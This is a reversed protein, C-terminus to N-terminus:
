VHQGMLVVRRPMAHLYRSTMSGRVVYGVISLDADSSRPSPAAALMPAALPWPQYCPWCICIGTLTTVTPSRFISQARKAAPVAARSDETM